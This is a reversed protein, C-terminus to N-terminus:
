YWEYCLKLFTGQKFIHKMSFIDYIMFQIYILKIHTSDHAFHLPVKHLFSLTLPHRFTSRRNVRRSKRLFCKIASTLSCFFVKSFMIESMITWLQIKSILRLSHCYENFYWCFSKFCCSFIILIGELIFTRYYKWM